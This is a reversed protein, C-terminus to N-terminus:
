GFMMDVSTVMLVIVFVLRVVNVPLKHTLHAGVFSGVIALPIIVAAITVSQAVVPPLGTAGAAWDVVGNGRVASEEILTPLTMNKRVAGFVSTICMLASSTAIASRLPIKCIKQFLPVVVIGGGIGLVGAMFGVVSGVFPIRWRGRRPGDALDPEKPKLLKRVNIFIVYLLFTAFIRKLLHADFLNGTQVGLIIFAIAFPLMIWVVRWRVAHNRHHQITSPVAVFTIVLMSAAQALHMDHNFILTLAPILIISGGIGLLGGLIGALLGFGSLALIEIWPM